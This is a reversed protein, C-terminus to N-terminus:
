ADDSFRVYLACDDFGGPAYLRQRLVAEFAFGAREAVARSAANETAALIELRHLRHDAFAHPVLAQVARTMVGRGGFRAALWYGLAGVGHPRTVDHIDLSGALVGDVFIAYNEGLDAGRREDVTAVFARVDEVTRSAEAWALWRTLRAREEAVLAAYASAHETRIPTLVLDDDVRIDPRMRM